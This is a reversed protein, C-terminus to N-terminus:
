RNKWEKTCRSSTYVNMGALGYENKLRNIEKIYERHTPFDKSSIEDVTEVGLSTKINFYRM